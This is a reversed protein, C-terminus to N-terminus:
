DVSQENKPAGKTSTELNPKEYGGDQRAIRIPRTSRAYHVLITVGLAANIALNLAALLLVGNHLIV